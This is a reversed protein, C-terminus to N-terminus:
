TQVGQSVAAAQVMAAENVQIIVDMREFIEAADEGEFDFVDGQFMHVKAIPAEDTGVNEIVAVANLNIVKGNAAIFNLFM